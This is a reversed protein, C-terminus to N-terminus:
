CILSLVQSIRTSEMLWKFSVSASNSLRLFYFSRTTACVLRLWSVTLASDKICFQLYKLDTHLPVFLLLMAPLPSLNIESVSICERKMKIGTHKAIWPLTQQTPASHALSCISQVTVPMFFTWKDQAKMQNLLNGCSEPKSYKINLSM